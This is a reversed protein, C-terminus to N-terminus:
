ILSQSQILKTSYQYFCVTANCNESCIYGIKCKGTDTYYISRKPTINDITSVKFSHYSITLSFSSCWLGFPTIGIFLFGLKKMCISMLRNIPSIPAFSTSSLPNTIPSYASIRLLLLLLPKAYGSFGSSKNM